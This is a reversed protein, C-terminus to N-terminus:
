VNTEEDLWSKIDELTMLRFLTNRNEVLQPYDLMSIPNISLFNIWNTPLPHKNERRRLVAVGEDSDWVVIEVSMDLRMAVAAKWTDGNWRGANNEKTQAAASRPNVDHMLITGGPALWKLSHQIDRFVQDAEHLGDIFIVDFYKDNQKFFADSEMRHTGGSTPDVGIVNGDKLLTKVKNFLEDMFCGIELYSSYHYKEVVLKILDFRYGTYESITSTSLFPTYAVGYVNLTISDELSYCEESSFNNDCFIALKEHVSDGYSVTVNYLADEGYYNLTVPIGQIVVLSYFIFFGILNM